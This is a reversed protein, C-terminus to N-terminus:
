KEEYDVNIPTTEEIQKADKLYRRRIAEEDVEEDDRSPKVVVEQVDRFGDHNKQLWILTTPNIEGEVGMMERYTGCIQKVHRAFKQQDANGRIGNAWESMLNGQIGLALYCAMNTVRIDNAACYNLYKELQNYLGEIDSNVPKEWMSLETVFQAITTNKGEETKRLPFDSKM